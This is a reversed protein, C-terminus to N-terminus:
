LKDQLLVKVDGKEDLDWEGEWSLTIWIDTTLLVEDKKFSAFM